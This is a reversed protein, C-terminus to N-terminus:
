FTSIPQNTTSSAHLVYQAPFYPASESQAQATKAAQGFQGITVVEASMSAMHADAIINLYKEIDSNATDGSRSVAGAAVFSAGLLAVVLVYNTTRNMIDDGRKLQDPTPQDNSIL